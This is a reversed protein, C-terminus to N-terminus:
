QQRRRMPLIKASRVGQEVRIRQERQQVAAADYVMRSMAQERIRRRSVDDLPQAHSVVDGPDVEVLCSSECSSLRGLHALLEQQSLVRRGRWLSLWLNYLHRM